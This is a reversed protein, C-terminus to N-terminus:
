GKANSGRVPARSSRWILATKGPDALDVLFLGRGQEVGKLSAADDYAATDFSLVLLIVFPLGGSFPTTRM